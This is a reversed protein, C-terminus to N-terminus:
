LFFFFSKPWLSTEGLAGFFDNGLFPFGPRNALVIMRFDPHMVIVNPMETAGLHPFYLLFCIFFTSIFLEYLEFAYKNKGTVSRIFLVYVSYNVNLTFCTTLLYKLGFRCLSKCHTQM